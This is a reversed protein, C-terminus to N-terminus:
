CARTLSKLNPTHELGGLHHVDNFIAEIEKVELLDEEGTLERQAQGGSLVVTVPSPPLVARREVAM